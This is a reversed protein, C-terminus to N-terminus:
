CFFVALQIPDLLPTALTTGSTGDSANSRATADAPPRTMATTIKDSGSSPPQLRPKIQANPM